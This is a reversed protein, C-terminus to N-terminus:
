RYRHAVIAFCLGYIVPLAVWSERLPIGLSGAAGDLLGLVMVVLLTTSFALALAELHIRRQMEDINALARRVVWVFGYFAFLPICAVAIDWHPEPRLADLLVRALFYSALWILGAAVVGRSSHRIAHISDANM